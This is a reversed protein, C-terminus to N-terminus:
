PTKQLIAHVALVRRVADAIARTTLTAGSVHALGRGVALDADLRREEFLRLWAPRPLYDEPEGFAVVEVTGVSGDPRVAVLITETLTHVPHTDFYATGLLREGMKGVYAVVLASEVISRAERSARERQPSTLFHTQREIVAPPPFARALAEDRSEYVISRAHAAGGLLAAAAALAVAAPKSLRVRRLDADRRRGANRM